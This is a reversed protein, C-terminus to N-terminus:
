KNELQNGGQVMEKRVSKKEQHFQKRVSKEGILNKKVTFNRKEYIGGGGWNMEKRVAKM